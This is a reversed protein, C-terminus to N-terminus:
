PTGGGRTPLSHGCLRMAIVPLQISLKLGLPFDIDACLFVCGLGLAKIPVTM